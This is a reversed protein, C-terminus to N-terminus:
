DTAREYPGLEADVFDRHFNKGMLYKVELEVDRVFPTPLVGEDGELLTVELINEGQVPWNAQELHWIFWYGSGTRYRPAQMRYLENIRRLTGPPLEAGNLCFRLQVLETTNMVRVRLVLRQQPMRMLMIAQVRLVLM